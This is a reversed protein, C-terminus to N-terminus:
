RGSKSSAARICSISYMQTAPVPLFAFLRVTKFAVNGLEEIKGRIGEGPGAQLEEPFSFIEVPLNSNRRYRLIRM